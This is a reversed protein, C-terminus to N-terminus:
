KQDQGHPIGSPRGLTFTAESWEVTLLGAAADACPVPCDWEDADGRELSENGDGTDGMLDHEVLAIDCRNLSFPVQKGHAQAQVM